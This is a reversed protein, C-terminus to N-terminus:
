GPGYLYAILHQNEEEAKEFLIKILDGVSVVGIVDCGAVVPLHGIRHRSMKGMVEHIEDDPGCSVPNRTMVEHISKELFSRGCDHFGRLVDRETFIGVLRGFDDVVPLSGFNESVLLALAEEVNSDLTVTIVERYRARLADRVLM